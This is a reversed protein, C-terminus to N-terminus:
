CLGKWSYGAAKIIRTVGTTTNAM